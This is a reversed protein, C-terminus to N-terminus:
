TDCDSPTEQSKLLGDIRMQNGVAKRIYNQRDSMGRLIRDIHQPYRVAIAGGLPEGYKPKQQELFAPTQVPNPNGKSM